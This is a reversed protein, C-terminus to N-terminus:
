LCNNNIWQNRTSQISSSSVTNVSITICSQNSSTQNLTFYGTGFFLKLDDGAASNYYCIDPSEWGYVYTGSPLNSYFAAGAAGCGITGNATLNITKEGYYEYESSATVLRMFPGGCKAEPDYITTIPISIQNDLKRYVRVKVPLICDMDNLSWAPTIKFQVNSYYEQTGGTGGSGGTGGGSCGNNSVYSYNFNIYVGNCSQFNVALSQNQVVDNVLYKHTAGGTPTLFITDGIVEWSGEETYDVACPTFQWNYKFDKQYTGNSCFKLTFDFDLEDAHSEWHGIIKDSLSVQNSSSSNSNSQVEEKKCSALALLIFSLYIIKKM